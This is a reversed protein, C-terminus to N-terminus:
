ARAHARAGSDVVNICARACVCAGMDVEYEGARALWVRARAGIDVEYKCVCM